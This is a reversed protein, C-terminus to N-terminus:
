SIKDLQAALLLIIIGVVVEKIFTGVRVIRTGNLTFNLYDFNDNPDAYSLFIPTIVGQILLTLINFIVLSAIVSVTFNKKVFGHLDSLLNM